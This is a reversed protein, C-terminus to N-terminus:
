KEPKIAISLFMHLRNLRHCSRALHGLLLSVLAYTPGLVLRLFKLHAIQVVTRWIVYGIVLCGYCHANYHANEENAPHWKETDVNCSGETLGANAALCELYEGPQAVRVGSEIWDDVRNEVLLEPIRELAYQGHAIWPAAGLVHAIYMWSIAISENCVIGGLIHHDHIRAAGTGFQLLHRRNSWFAGAICGTPEQATAAAGSTTQIHVIVVIASQGCSVNWSIRDRRGCCGDHLGHLGCM